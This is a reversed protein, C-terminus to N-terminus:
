YAKKYAISKIRNEQPEEEEPEAEIARGGFDYFSLFLIRKEGVRNRFGM